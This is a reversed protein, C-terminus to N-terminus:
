VTKKKLYLTGSTTFENDSISLDNFFSFLPRAVNNM